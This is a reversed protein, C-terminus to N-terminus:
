SRIQHWAEVDRLRHSEGPALGALRWPGVCHRILRLTPLGVAATMRRVQRNRGEDVTIGIWSTPISKRVRIPPQRPWLDEPEDMLSADIAKALGDKLRVGNQLASIHSHQAVGEVQVWYSKPLKSGPHAIRAQLKGDSTLVLLGESPYDLRGAAYVNKEKIFDSLTARGRSDTFQPLVMAPKNFLIVTM